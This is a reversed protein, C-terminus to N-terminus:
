QWNERTLNRIGGEVVAIDDEIRVGGFRRLREVVDWNVGAAHPGTRVPALLDDIFYCGPEVTFVQGVEIVSTNRLFRNDPRPERPRCGVDHVQIGLSHGLGHPFFARTVGGGVLEDAAATAIGTDRLVGALLEHARDHLAEYELGPAILEYLQGQLAEVGAVLMSFLTADARGGAVTTRTIDSAYGLYTAGADVLLTPAADPPAEAQYHVHHLVAGHSGVAVINKYPTATDDQRTARLYALHLTLESREGDRFARALARHGAAARRNAEALCHLEYASKRSRVADLAALLAPPDIAEPAIGLGEARDRADGIFAVRGSPLHDRIRSAEGVEIVELRDLFHASDPEAHGEWFDAVVTRILRPRGEATVVLACDPEALPVWHAFAPTPSLPWFQDDYTSKRAAVGSYLVLADFGCRELAAATERQLRELHEDYLESLSMGRLM